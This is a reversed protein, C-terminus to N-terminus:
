IYGFRVMDDLMDTIRKNYTKKTEEPVHFLKMNRLGGVDKSIKNANVVSGREAFVFPVLLVGVLVAYAGFERFQSLLAQYPFLNRADSGLRYYYQFVM